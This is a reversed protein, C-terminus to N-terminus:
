AGVAWAPESVDSPGLPIVHRTEGSAIDYLALWRLRFGSNDAELTHAITAGDASWVPLSAVGAGHSIRQQQDDPLRLIYLGRVGDVDAAFALAQGDPSWTLSHVIGHTTLPQVSGGEADILALRDNTDIFALKRGDPSWRPWGYARLANTLVRPPGGNADLVVLQSEVPTTSTVVIRQGDPSWQAQSASGGTGPLPTARGTEPSVIFLTSVGAQGPVTVLLARGDPSWRPEAQGGGIDTLCREAQAPRIICVDRDVAGVRVFAIAGDASLDPEREDYEDTHTLNVQMGTQADILIVNTTWRLGCCSIALIQSTGLRGALAAAVVLVLMVALLGAASLILRARM